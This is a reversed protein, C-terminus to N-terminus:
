NFLYIPSSWDQHGDEQTVCLYLRTDGENLIPIRSSFSFGIPYVDSGYSYPVSSEISGRDDIGFKGCTYALKFSEWSGAEFRGSPDVELSGMLDPRYNHFQM